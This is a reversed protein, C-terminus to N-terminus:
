FNKDIYDIIQEMINTVYENSYKYDYLIFAHEADPIKILKSRHGRRNLLDNLEETYKMDVIKDATGHIFLFDACKEGIMKSPTLNDIDECNRFGYSWKSDLSGLVPNLSVVSKPRIEDDQSLGLMTALYGGASDGIYIINDFNIFTLHTKIYKIADVCDTLLDGVNLQDSVTLSRYSITIGVFGKQTFYKANNAMWGGNWLTNDKIADNWGGGHILLITQRNHVDNDPLYIQMPLNLNNVTKYVLEIDAKKDKFEKM